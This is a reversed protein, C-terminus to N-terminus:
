SQSTEASMGPPAPGLDLNLAFPLLDREAKLRFKTRRALTIETIEYTIFPSQRCEIRLYPVKFM